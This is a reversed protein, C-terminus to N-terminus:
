GALRALRTWKRRGSTCEPRLRMLWVTVTEGALLVALPVAVLPMLLTSYSVASATWQTLAYVGAGFSVVTGLVALYAIAAITGPESPSTIPERAVLTIGLLIAAATVM